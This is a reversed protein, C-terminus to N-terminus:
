AALRILFVFGNLAAAAAKSSRVIDIPLANAELENADSKAWIELEDLNARAAAIVELLKDKQTRIPLAANSEGAGIPGLKDDQPAFYKNATEAYPKALVTEKYNARESPPSPMKLNFIGPAVVAMAEIDALSHRAYGPRFTTAPKAERVIKAAASVVMAGTTVSEILKQNGSKIVSRALTVSRPSVNMIEAAVASSTELPLNAEQDPKRDGGHKTTAIKAAIMARQSADLHRRKLNLSVVYGLPDDGKYEKFVPKVGAVQCARFRNRGDLIKDEFTVIPAHLGNDRIDATLARQEEAGLMPFLDALPHFKIESM